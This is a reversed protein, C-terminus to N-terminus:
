PHAGSSGIVLTHPAASFQLLTPRPYHSLDHVELDDWGERNEFPPIASGWSAGDHPRDLV